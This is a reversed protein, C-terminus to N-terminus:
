KFFSLAYEIQADKNELLGEWTNDVIHEDDPFIGVGEWCKGNIDEVRQVPIAYQWGNVLSRIIRASFSGFTKEGAHIVHDQTRLALTFWEGASVTEENTLLVIRKTYLPGAPKITWTMPVSFDNRGPGNKTRSKAYKRPEAAFRAAIYDMNSGIGGTNNRIDLVLGDTNNIFLRVIDNIKKAWDPIADIGIIPSGFDYIFIYGIPLKSKDSKFTGYLFGMDDGTFVGRDELYEERVLELSFPPFPKPSSPIELYYFYDYYDINEYKIGEYEIDKYMLFNSNGFPTILGVHADKLLNLMEACVLFLEYDTMDQRIKESYIGRVEHWDIERADFLPYTENFDTWIHNFIGRPSSDPDNGLIVHCSSMTALIIISFLILSIVPIRTRVM